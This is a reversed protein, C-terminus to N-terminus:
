SEVPIQFIRSQDPDRLKSGSRDRLIVTAGGHHNPETKTGLEDKNSTTTNEDMLKSIPNSSNHEINNHNPKSGNTLARVEFSLCEGGIDKSPESL